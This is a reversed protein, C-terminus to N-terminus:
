AFVTASFDDFASVCDDVAVGFAVEFVVLVSFWDVVGFRMLLVHHRGWEGFWVKSLEFGEDISDEVFVTGPWCLVYGFVM